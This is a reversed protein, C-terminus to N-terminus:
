LWEETVIDNFVPDRTLRSYWLAGRNVFTQQEVPNFTSWDFDWVPGATLKGGKDLYMWCSGPKNPEWLQTLEVAIFWDAFSHLDMLDRYSGDGPFNKAYLLSELNNLYAQVEALKTENMDEDKPSKVCFPIQATETEFKWEENENALDAELLFGDKDDINVRRSDVRIQETVFYLGRYSGARFFEVFRGEPTWALDTKRAIELGVANRIQTRDKWNALMVWRKHKNMDLVPQKDYLAFNFPKKPWGWTSNGHGKVKLGMQTVKAFTDQIFLTCNETWTETSLITESDLVFTPFNFNYVKVKYNTRRGDASELVYPVTKDFEFSRTEGSKQPKDDCKVSAVNCKFTVTVKSLDTELPLAVVLNNGVRIAEVGNVAFCPMQPSEQPGLFDEAPPYEGKYEQLWNEPTIVVEPEEPTEPTDPNEPDDPTDPDSPNEPTDPQQPNDPDSPVEIDTQGSDPLPTDCGTVVFFASM